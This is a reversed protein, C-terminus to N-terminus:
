NYKNKLAELIKEPKAPISNLWIGLADHIASVVAPAVPSLPLESMGKAGFPGEIHPDEIIISEIEPTKGIRRVGLKAFNNTIARGNELKYEESLAYGLGMVIGGEIQGEISKPNIASGVDHAAIVKLVNVRGTEKEVEIIVAQAGFCYAAHLRDEGKKYGNEPEKLSFYTKPASYRYEEFLKIKNKNLMKSFDNLSIIKKSNSKSYFFSNKIEIDNVDIKFIKSIYKFIKMKLNKAMNYVANGTVFTQRSATTMGGLPDRDSDGSKVIIKSYPWGLVESAIQAMTTDSGQGVDISGIKLLLNGNDVVEGYAGASDNIGLGLGVNKYSSAIGVGIKWGHAPEPIKTKKLAERVAVLCAKAGVSSKIREGTITPLEEELINKLRIEFPDMNIKEALRNLQMESAFTVTPNGFGRMAGTPNGNTYAARARINVNPITYPGAGFSVSRLIVAEEVSAYAGAHALIDAQVSTIKGDKKIGTKYHLYQANRKTSSKISEGRTFVFKVPRKTKLAGLAAIIQVTIDEKGGFAGGVPMHAIHIKESPMNLSSAIQRIDDEPGQSGVYISIRGDEEFVAVAAEPELYAHEIFQTKYDGELIIDANDFGEKVNGRGSEMRTFINSKEENDHILIADKKIAEQPTNIIPLPEYKVKIKSIAKEAIRENEAYAAAIVDGIYRVKKDAFVPQDPVILGFGNRGPVDDATLVTFVGEVKLAESIDIDLIKAHPYESRLVKTFLMNEFYLDDAYKLEGTVKSLGDVRIISKGIANKEQNYIEKRPIEKIGQRIMEAAKQVAKIIKIYGTCRCLNRSLAKKIEEESPNNNKDLLAKTSMIMGPTCFGCQVAGEKIYAYQIPHITEKTSLAELTIINKGDMDKMKKTCSPTAKGDIIVTCAGCSGENCGNKISLLKLNNRLYFLLSMEKDTIQPLYEKGNVTLKIKM